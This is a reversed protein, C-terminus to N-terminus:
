IMEYLASPSDGSDVALEIADETSARTSKAAARQLRLHGYLRFNRRGKRGRRTRLAPHLHQDDSNGTVPRSINLSRILTRPARVPRALDNLTRHFIRRCVRRDRQASILVKRPLEPLKAINVAIRRAEDRM